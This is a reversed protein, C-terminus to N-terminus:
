HNKTPSVCVMYSHDRINKIKVDHLFMGFLWVSLSQKCSIEEGVLVTFYAIIKGISVMMLVANICISENVADAISVAM